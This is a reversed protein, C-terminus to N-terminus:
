PFLSCLSFAHFNLHFRRLIKLSPLRDSVDGDVGARLDATRGDIKGCRSNRAVIAQAPFKLSIAFGSCSIAILIMRRLAM